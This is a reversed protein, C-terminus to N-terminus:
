AFLTPSSQRVTDLGPAPAEAARALVQAWVEAAHALDGLLAHLRGADLSAAPWRAALVADGSGPAYSLTAGRTAAWGYNAELMLRMTEARRAGRVPGLVAYATLCGAPRDPVLTVPLDGAMLRIAGSEDAELSTGLTRGLDGLLHRTDSITTM